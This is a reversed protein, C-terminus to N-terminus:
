VVVMPSKKVNNMIGATTYWPVDPKLPSFYEVKRLFFMFFWDILKDVSISSM